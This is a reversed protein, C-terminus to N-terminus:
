EEEGQQTTQQECSVQFSVTTTCCLYIFVVLVAGVILAPKKMM